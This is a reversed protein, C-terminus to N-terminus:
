FAITGEVMFGKFQGGNRIDTTPFDLYKQTVYEVKTLLLPTIFWGGGVQARRVTIDNAIGALPGAVTNYRGTLYVNDGLGRVTVPHAGPQAWQVVVSVQRRESPAAAVEPKMGRIVRMLVLAAVIVIVILVGQALARKM